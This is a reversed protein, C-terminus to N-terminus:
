APPQLRRFERGFTTLLFAQLIVVFPRRYAVRTSADERLSEDRGTALLYPTVSAIPLATPLFASRHRHTSYTPSAITPPRSVNTPARACCFAVSSAVNRLSM